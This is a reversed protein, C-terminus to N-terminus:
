RSLRRRSLKMLGLIIIFVSIVALAGPEPSNYTEAYENDLIEKEKDELQKWQNENEVVM